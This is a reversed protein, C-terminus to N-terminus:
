ALHVSLLLGTALHLIVAGLIASGIVAVGGLFDRWQSRKPELVISVGVCVAM